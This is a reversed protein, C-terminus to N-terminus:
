PTALVRLSIASASSCHGPLAIGATQRALQEPAIQLIEIGLLLPDQLPHRGARKRAHIRLLQGLSVCAKPLPQRVPHGRDAAAPAEDAAKGQHQDGPHQEVAPYQFLEAEM